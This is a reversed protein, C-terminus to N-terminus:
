FKFNQKLQLFKEQFLPPFSNCKPACGIQAPIEKLGLIYAIAIRHNGDGMFYPKLNPGIHIIVSVKERFKSEVLQQRTKM